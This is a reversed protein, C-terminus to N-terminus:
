PMRMSFRTQTLGSPFDPTFRPLVPAFVNEAELGQRQRGEVPRQDVRLQQRGVFNGPGVGVVGPHRVFDAGQHIFGRLRPELM